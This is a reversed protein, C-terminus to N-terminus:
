KGGSTALVDVSSAQLGLLACLAQTLKMRVVPDDAGQAVAIAGCPVEQTQAQTGFGTGQQASETRTRIVVSVQGAGEIGSLTKSVRSELQTMGTQGADGTRMLLLIAAALLLALLVPLSFAARLRGLWDKM